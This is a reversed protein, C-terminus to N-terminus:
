AKCKPTRTSFITSRNINKMNRLSKKINKEKVGNVSNLASEKHRNELKSIIEKVTDIKNLRNM